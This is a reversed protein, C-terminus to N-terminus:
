DKFKPTFEGLDLTEGSQVTFDKYSYEDEEWTMLRYTAGPVLAPFTYYQDKGKRQVNAKWYGDRYNIYDINSNFDSDAAVNGARMKKFDYRPVGPTVILNLLVPSFKREEGDLIFKARAAGCPKLVVKVNDDTARLKVTTGLKQAADLFVVPYERDASLGILKFKGGLNPPAAGCWGGSYDWVRLSTAIVASEILKGQEDVIEGEIQRGPKVQIEVDLDGEEMSANIEHLAHAYVRSGGPKDYHIKRSLEQQLVYNAGAKKVLLTGRGPPVAFTFNGDVDSTQKAQWGTVANKPVSKQKGGSEYTITAGEVPKGTGEELVRGRVLVVRPLKIDVERTSDGNEWTLRETERAMYPVGSPPYAAVGFRIGPKPLLRYRGEADTHGEISSMTGFESQSAWISVKADPVPEGTDEFTVVGTFVKGPSLVVVAEESPKYIRATSRYHDDDRSQQGTNIAFGQPPFKKSNVVSVFVGHGIPVGTLKFRGDEDTIVSPLWAVPPTANQDWDLGLMRDSNIGFMSSVNRANAERSKVRNIQLTEGVAPQGEIDVLKGEIIGQELLKIEVTKREAQNQQNGDLKRWGIGYGDSRALLFRSNERSNDKPWTNEDLWCVGNTDTMTELVVKQEWTEPDDGTVAVHAGAALKGDPLIVQVKLGNATAATAVPDREQGRVIESLSMPNSNPEPKATSKLNTEQKSQPAAISEFRGDDNLRLVGLDTTQGAEFKLDTFIEGIQRNTPTSREAATAGYKKEPLLGGISFRGDEDTLLPKGDLRYPFLSLESEFDDRAQFNKSANNIVVDRIPEGAQDVIRGTVRGSPVLKMELTKPAKGKLSIAAMSKSEPHYIMVNRGVDPEYGHVVLDDSANSTWGGFPRRGSVYVETLPSGDIGTVRIPISIGPDLSINMPKPEEGPELEIPALYHYNVPLVHAPRTMYMVGNFDPIPPWSIAKAGAGRQFRQDENASFTLIGRGSVVPIEFNGEADVPYRLRQDGRKLIPTEAVAPNEGFTWYQFYGGVPIDTATEVIKGRQFVGKRMKIERTVEDEQVKTTVSVGGVMYASGLPARIRLENGGIPLGVLRFSGDAGSVDNVARPTMSGGANHVPTRYGEVTVGAVPDGTEHDLLRGAVPRTEGAVFTFRNPYYTRIDDVQRSTGNRFEITEGTESRAFLQSTEISDHSVILEVIRDDGLGQLEFWGDSDTIFPKLATTYPGDVFSGSTVTTLKESASYFNADVRQIEEKWEDLTGTKGESITVAAVLAGVVPQGDSNLIRGRIRKEDPPMVLVLPKDGGREDVMYRRERKNLLPKLQGTTDARAARSTAVGFGDKSAVLRSYKLAKRQKIDNSGPMPRQFSFEGDKATVALVESLSGRQGVTDGCLRLEVGEIPGGDKNVVRGAFRLDTQKDIPSVIENNGTALNEVQEAVELTITGVCTMLAMLVATVALCMWSGKSLFTKRDRRTDLLGAVRHELKWRDTFFGVSGPMAEPQQVLEALSLLTRSYAPAEIGALVFNDCVEERAKALGRNLMKVLPHPWYLAAVLNQVLVVIQDRRAVHAVEHILVNSLNKADVQDILRSPLVVTGGFIGAAIPGSVANSVVLQPGGERTCGVAACAQEFAHQLEFNEVPRAQKLIRAMRTWGILMRVLLITTGLAWVVLTSTLIIRLWDSASRVQAATEVVIPASIAATEVVPSLQSNM